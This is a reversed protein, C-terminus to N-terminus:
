ENGELKSLVLKGLEERLPELEIRDLAEMAFGHTLLIKAVDASMGRSKLYFVSDRDLQGVTAGHTCKVDDAFIELMPKTNVRALPSLLLNRNTQKADTKQADERVLVKGSFVARASDTLVGKFLEHSNCHPTAHDIFTHNDVHQTGRVVYLGDLYSEIGEGDFRLTLNNRTLAGGLVLSFSSFRSDRRQKTELTAIHYANESERQLRYHHVSANDDLVVETVANTLSVGNSLSAYTEIVSASSSRDAVILVRPHSAVGTRGSSLFLLHLPEEIVENAPVHIYAGDHIFATNLAVFANAKSEIVKGLHEEVNSGNAAADVINSVTAREWAPNIKSLDKSLIGDVFVLRSWERSGALFPLVKEPSIEIRDHSTSFQAQVIPAVSTFRWEEDRTTPFRSDAFHEIATSRLGDLWSPDSAAGNRAFAEYDSLYQTKSLDM